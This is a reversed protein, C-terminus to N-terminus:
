QQNTSKIKQKVKQSSLFFIIFKGIQAKKCCEPNKKLYLDIKAIEIGFLDDLTINLFKM